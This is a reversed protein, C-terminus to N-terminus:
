ENMTCQKYNKRQSENGVNNNFHPSFYLFYTIPYCLKKRGQFHLLIKTIIWLLFVMIGFFHIIIIFYVLLNTITQM